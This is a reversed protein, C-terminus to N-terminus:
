ERKVRLQTKLACGAPRILATSIATYRPAARSRRLRCGRRVRAGRRHRPDSLGPAAPVLSVKELILVFFCRKVPNSNKQTIYPLIEWVLAFLSGKTLSVTGANSYVPPQVPDSVPAQWNGDGLEFHMRWRQKEGSQWDIETTQRIGSCGHMLQLWEGRTKRAFCESPKFKIM